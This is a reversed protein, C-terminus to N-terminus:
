VVVLTKNDNTEKECPNIGQTDQGSTADRRHAEGGSHDHEPKAVNADKSASTVGITALHLQEKWAGIIPHVLRQAEKLSETGLSQVFRPKGFTPRLARPIELVAYYLRRRKQLYTPVDAL